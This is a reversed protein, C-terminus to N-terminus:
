SADRSRTWILSYAPCAIRHEKLVPPDVIEGVVNRKNRSGILQMQEKDRRLSLIRIQHREIDVHVSLREQLAEVDAGIRKAVINGVFTDESIDARVLVAVQMQFEMGFAGRWRDVGDILAM